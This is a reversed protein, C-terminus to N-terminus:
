DNIQLIDIQIGKRNNVTGKAVFFGFPKGQQRHIQVVQSGNSHIKILEGWVLEDKNTSREPSSEPSM